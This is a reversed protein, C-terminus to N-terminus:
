SPNLVPFLVILMHSFFSYQRSSPFKLRWPGLQDMFITLTQAMKSPPVLRPSSRDLALDIVCNLDRGLILTHSDSDPILSLVSNIFNHDDWYISALAVPKQYLTGSIITYRGESDTIIKNPTFQVNKKILIATGRTKLNFQSHFIQGIWPRKLKGHDSKLLHTDQLFIVDAILNKIYTMIKTRKLVANLGGTNLSAFRVM